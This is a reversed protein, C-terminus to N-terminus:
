RYQRPQPIAYIAPQRLFAQGQVHVCSFDREKIDNNHHGHTPVFSFPCWYIIAHLEDGGFAEMLCARYQRLTTVWFLSLSPSFGIIMLLMRWIRLHLELLMCAFWGNSTIATYRKGTHPRSLPLMTTTHAPLYWFRLSSSLRGWLSFNYILLVIFLYICVVYAYCMYHCEVQSCISRLIFILKASLWICHQHAVLAKEVWLSSFTLAPRLLATKGWLCEWGHCVGIASSYM